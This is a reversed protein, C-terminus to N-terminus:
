RSGDGYVINQDLTSMCMHPGTGMSRIPRSHVHVLLIHENPVVTPVSPFPGSAFGVDVLPELDM